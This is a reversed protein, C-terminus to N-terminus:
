EGLAQDASATACAASPERDIPSKKNCLNSKLHRLAAVLAEREPEPLGILAEERVAKSLRRIQELVPQAAPTLYLMWMRRDRPNLRREILGAEELRDVQRVLM